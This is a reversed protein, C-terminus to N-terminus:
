CAQWRLAGETMVLIFQKSQNDLVTQRQLREQVGEADPSGFVCAAYAPTQLLGDIMVPQFGRVLQSADELEGVRKQTAAVGSALIVRASMEERLATALELLEDRQEAPVDYARCLGAV